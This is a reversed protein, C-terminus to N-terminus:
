LISLQLYFACRFVIAVKSEFNLLVDDFQLAQFELSLLTENGLELVIAEGLLREFRLGCASMLEVSLPADPARAGLLRRAAQLRQGASGVRQEGAVIADATTHQVLVFTQLRASCGLKQLVHLGPRQLSVNAMALSALAAFSAFTLHLLLSQGGLRCLNIYCIVTHQNMYNHSKDAQSM